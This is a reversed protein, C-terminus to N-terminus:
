PQAAGPPVKSRFELAVGSLGFNDRSGRENETQEIRLLNAGMKLVDAPIALRLRQPTENRAVVQLNWDELSRGNLASRTRLQGKKVQDSFPPMGEPGVLQVVDVALFADGAPIEALTFPIEVPAKQYQPPDLETTWSDGIHHATPDVIMRRVRGLFRLKRLRDRPVTIRGVYPVDLAIQDPGLAQLTGEVRDLDRVDPGAATQWEARVWMGELPVSAMPIRRFYLGSVESWPVRVERGDIELAIRDADASPIRGFLQDGSSNRVEDQTPDIELKGFPEVFRVLRLDDVIAALNDPARSMGTTETAIRIEFLVGGPGKGHALEDGDVALEAKQEDFRITLRHWGPKRGLPQVNMASGGPTEVALTDESWGPIARITTIEANGRRFALDLFWRQGVSKTGDDFFAIELRGSGLPEVLRSTLSSGGAPLRLSHTGVLKPETVFEPAGGQSWRNADPAEFGERFIQVEGPRQILASTGARDIRLSATKLSSELRISSADLGSLRGSLRGWPNLMIQFPPSGSSRDPEPGTITVEAGNNLPLAPGGGDPLFRFGQPPTGTIKGVIKKGEGADLTEVRTTNPGKDADAAQGYALCPWVIACFWM